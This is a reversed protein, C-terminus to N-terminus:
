LIFNTKDMESVEIRKRIKAKKMEFQEIISGSVVVRSSVMGSEGMTLCIFASM